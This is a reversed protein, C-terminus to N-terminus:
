HFLPPPTFETLNVQWIVRNPVCMRFLVLSLEIYNWSVWTPFRALVFAMSYRVCGSTFAAVSVYMATLSIGTAARMTARLANIGRKLKTVPHDHDDDDEESAQIASSAIFLPAANSRVTPNIKAISIHRQLPSSFAFVSIAGILLIGIQFASKM